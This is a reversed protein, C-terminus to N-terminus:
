SRINGPMDRVVIRGPPISVGAGIRVPGLVMSGPAVSVRDDLVPLGLGAGIDQRAMGAGMGGKAIVTYNRGANGSVTVGVPHLVVFGPGIDSLPSIDAGTLLLNVHWFFRALFRHNRVFFARSIRYLAVCWLAPDLFPPCCVDAGGHRYQGLRRRDERFTDRVTQWLM